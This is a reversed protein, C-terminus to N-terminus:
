DPMNRYELLARCVEALDLAGDAGLNERLMRKVTKVGLEAWSNSHPFYASSVRQRIGWLECFQRFEASVFQPGGDSSLEEMVGYTTCVEKLVRILESSSMKCAQHVVPWGSYRDVLVLYTYGKLDFYDGWVMQFPYQVVPM